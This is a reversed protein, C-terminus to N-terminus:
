ESTHVIKDGLVDKAQGNASSSLGQTSSRPGRVFNHTCQNGFSRLTRRGNKYGGSASLPQTPDDYQLIVTSVPCRFDLSDGPRHM